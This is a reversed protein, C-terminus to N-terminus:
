GNPKNKYLKKYFAFAVVGVIAATAIALAILKNNKSVKNIVNQSDKAWNKQFFLEDANKYFIKDIIDDAEDGFNNKIATKVDVITKDYFQKGSLSDKGTAFEGVPADSGFLIRHTMDGNKHQKLGKILEIISPKSPNDVDVWSIDVYLNADKKNFSEFIVQKAKEHVRSGGGGYHAIIVPTDPIKKAAEYIKEPSSYRRANEVLQGNEWEIGCHFLCPLKEKKALQLYSDLMSSSADIQHCDPHFKLGIVSKPNAKLLKVINKVNGTKPQCVLYCSQAKTGKFTDILKQNGVIEDLYPANTKPNLFICDLSSPLVKKVVFTDEGSQICNDTFKLIDCPNISRGLKHTHKDHMHMDIISYQRTFSINRQLNSFNISNIRLKLRLSMLLNEIASNLCM